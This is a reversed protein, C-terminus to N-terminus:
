LQDRVEYYAENNQQKRNSVKLQRDVEDEEDLHWTRTCSTNGSREKHNWIAWSMSRSRHHGLSSLFRSSLRAFVDAFSGLLSAFVDAVRELLDFKLHSDHHELAVLHHINPL